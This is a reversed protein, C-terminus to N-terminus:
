ALAAGGPPPGAAAVVRLQKEVKLVLGCNGCTDLAADRGIGCMPCIVSLEEGGDGRKTGPPYVIATSSSYPLGRPFIPQGDSGIQAPMPNEDYRIRTRPKRIFYWGWFLVGLTVIPGIVFLVLVIPLLDVLGSWDPVVLKELFGLLGTWLNEVHEEIGPVTPM